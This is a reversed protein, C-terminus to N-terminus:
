AVKRVGHRIIAKYFQRQVEGLAESCLVEPDRPLPLTQQAKSVRQATVEPSYAGLARLEPTSPSFVLVSITEWRSGLHLYPGTRSRKTEPQAPAMSDAADEQLSSGLQTRAATGGCRLAQSESSGVGM